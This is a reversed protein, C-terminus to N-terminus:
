EAKRKLLFAGSRKPGSPGMVIPEVMQDVVLVDDPDFEAVNLASAHMGPEYPQGEVSVLKMGISDLVQEVRREFYRNQGVYRAAQGADLKDIARAFVRTIRWSEIALDILAQEADQSPVKDITM